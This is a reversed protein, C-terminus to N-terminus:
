EFLLRGTLDYVFDHFGVWNLFFVVALGVLFQVALPKANPGWFPEHENQM